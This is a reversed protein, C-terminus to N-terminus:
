KDSYHGWTSLVLVTVIEEEIQYVLRHKDSIRRSYTPIEHFKLREPKGTGTTPHNELEDLLVYLKKLLKKDGSNEIKKVDRRADFTLGVKYTM